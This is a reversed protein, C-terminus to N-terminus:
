DASLAALLAGPPPCRAPSMTPASPSSKAQALDSACTQQPGRGEGLVILIDRDTMMKRAAEVVSDEAGIFEVGATMIDRAAPM